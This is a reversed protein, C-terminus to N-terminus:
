FSINAGFSVIRSLPYSSASGLLDNNGAYDRVQEPDFFILDTATFLNEGTVYMRINSVNFKSTVEKPITYGIQLSKLRMYAGSQIFHSTNLRYNKNTRGGGNLYPKPFYADLNPGLPSTTDEPRFYDLHGEWVFAHFAGNSPGRFGQSNGTVLNVDRKGVGQIFTNFDWNKYNMGLTIGYQYRPTSNGIVKLDGSDGNANNGNNIVGDGNQDVYRLDGAEYAFGNVFSQDVADTYTTAEENSQFLGDTEYGYIDGLNLGVFPSSLIGADNPFETITQKYDNLVGRVSYGFDGLQQRWTIDLDFGQVRSAGVNRLPPLSGLQSPLDLGPGTMDDTDIRYWSFAVNLKNNFAGIDFGIDTTTVTEWTLNRSTFGPTQSFIGQQGNFLYSTGPSVISITSLYDNIPANQNGLSGYSGRLKFTNISELPWFDEKAVNYGLSFSPLGVWRDEPAYRSSGDRRYTFEALYKEKYNYRLRGFYGVTSYNSIAESVTQDDDLTANLSIINNTILYDTSAGLSYTDTIESQFGATVNINHNSISKDYSAYINPSFYEVTSLTPSYSSQAQSVRDILGNPVIKQHALSINEKFNNNRRYNLDVNLKLNKSAQIIFKPALIIQDTKTKLRQYQFNPYYAHELLETGYIPDFQPLTPKIKTILDLVRTKNRLDSGNSGSTPFDTFSKLYKSYLEITLWDNVKAGFKADLNYRQFSEDGVALLGDEDYAGASIYYNMKEDGGSISFDHKVRQAWKKIIIDDWNTAGTGQIGITGYNWANGNANSEISPASGPNAMNAMINALDTEDYYVGQRNNTRADNIAYAFDIPSASEPYTTPQSFSVNSRYTVRAKGDSNKGSKTTVLIAGSAANSGYIAAAAADKLVSVSEIDEPNIDNMSMRVGDVLVLPESNIIDSTGGGISTLYGRININSGAGPEGGATSNTIILGPVTGQLSRVANATPRNEFAETGIVSVAATLNVKKQTGYGVVVVENLESIDEELTLNITTKSGVTIEKTKFGIFSATIISANSSVSIAYVGDFDTQVGNTTGKEVVNVGPIPQGNIDTITGSVQHKQIDKEKKLEDVANPALGFMPAFSLFIFARM